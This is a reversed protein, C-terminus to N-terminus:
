KFYPENIHAFGPGNLQNTDVLSSFIADRDYIMFKIWHSGKFAERLQMIVWQATPHFTVNFHLIKRREHEIIFFCYLRKFFLTPVVFFDMAAFGKCQNNIFAKWTKRKKRNATSGHGSLYRSVTRESVNFGLKLSEGHIRPAEWTPNEAAMQQILTIVEKAMPSKGKGKKNRSRCKWYFRFGKRHWRVVAEPKVVMLVEKWRNWICRLGAWFIRDCRSLTPRPKVKKLVALQQRLIMNEKLLDARSHFLYGLSQFLEIIRLFLTM